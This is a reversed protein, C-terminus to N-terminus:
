IKGMIEQVEEDTVQNFDEYFQGVSGFQNTIIPCILNDVQNKFLRTSCLSAVPVVINISKPLFKQVYIVCAYMSFGTALGDDVIFVKKDKLDPLLKNGRYQEMRRKIEEKEEEIKNNIHQESVNLTKILFINKVFSGDETVAGIALEPNHPAGIKRSIIIDLPIKLIRSIEYGVIVGGRPIALIINNGGFYLSPPIKDALKRGADARDKYIPYLIHLM